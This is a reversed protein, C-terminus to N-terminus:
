RQAPSLQEPYVKIWHTRILDKVQGASPLSSRKPSKCRCTVIWAIRQWSAGLKPFLSCNPQHCTLCKETYSAAVKEPEHSNHCTGCTMTGSIQYCRSRQLLPVQNGHVNVKANIEPSHLNIFRALPEGPVFSFAPLLQLSASIPAVISLKLQRVSPHFEASARCQLPRKTTFM